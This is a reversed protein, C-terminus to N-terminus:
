NKYTNINICKVRITNKCTSSHAKPSYIELKKCVTNTFITQYPPYPNCIQM